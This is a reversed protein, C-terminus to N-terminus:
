ASTEKLEPRPQGARTRKGMLYEHLWPHETHELERVPAVAIIRQEALVAVRDCITYLTDLDHTVVLVSLGLTRALSAVLADIQEAMLPDLGATPEDLLLLEPDLAIARAVGVRKQLGGSLESPLKHLADAPMGSMRAKLAAIKLVLEVPLHAHERLPVAVNELVSLTSFLANAQFLVGWRRKIAALEGEDAGYLDQGFLEIRGEVPPLLGIVSRLLVSKGAGSAGVLGLIEGRRMELNVGDHIITGGLETRVDVLRLPVAADGSMAM